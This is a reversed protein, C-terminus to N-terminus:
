HHTIPYGITEQLTHVAPWDIFLRADFTFRPNFYLMDAVAREPSAWLIGGRETIGIMNYLYADSLRRVRYSTPRIIFRRSVGSVLTIQPINQQIIGAQALITETSVYAFQHLVKMGVLFPDLDAIPKISYLGNQLRFLLGARVYRSLITHLTNTNPIGWFTAADRAHFVMEGMRALTAFRIDRKAAQVSLIYKETRM